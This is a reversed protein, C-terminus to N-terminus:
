GSFIVCITFGHAILNYSAPDKSILNIPVAKPAPDNTKTTNKSTPPVHGNAQQTTTPKLDLNWYSAKIRTIM